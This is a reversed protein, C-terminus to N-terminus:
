DIAARNNGIVRCIRRNRRITYGNRRISTEILAAGPKGDGARGPNLIRGPPRLLVQWSATGPGVPCSPTATDRSFKAIGTVNGRAIRCM